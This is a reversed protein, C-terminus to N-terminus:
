KYWVNLIVDNTGPAGTDSDSVSTTVAASIATSFSVPYPFAIHGSSSAPLPFTLVPTTSGVIVNAATANYFKLYRVSTAVNGFFYGYLNGASAKIEEESEDLDLSRFISCGSTTTPTLTAWLGGEASTNVTANDGTTGASSAATDRRVSGAMALGGGATEAADEVGVINDLLQVATLIGGTDADMTTLLGEIGDVHGIITDQKGSTAAGTPLASAKVDVALGNAGVAAKDTGNLTGDMIKVYQVQVTGLDGDVVEDTAVTKGSGETVAINDTM